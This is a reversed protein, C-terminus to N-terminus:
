NRNRAKGFGKGTPRGCISGGEKKNVEKKNVERYSGDPQKIRGLANMFKEPGLEKIARTTEIEEQVVPPLESSLKNKKKIQKETIKVNKSKNKDKLKELTKEKQNESTSNKM